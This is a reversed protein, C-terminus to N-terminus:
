SSLACLGNSLCLVLAYGIANAWMFAMAYASVSNENKLTEIFKLNSLNLLFLSLFNFVNQLSIIIM